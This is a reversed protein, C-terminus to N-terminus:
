EQALLNEWEDILHNFSEVHEDITNEESENCVLDKNHLQEQINESEEDESTEDDSVQNKSEENLQHQYTISARLKSMSIAKSF